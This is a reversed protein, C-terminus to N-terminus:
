GSTVSSVESVRENVMARVRGDNTTWGGRAEEGSGM